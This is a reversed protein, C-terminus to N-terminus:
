LDLVKTFAAVAANQVAVTLQTALQAENTVVMLDSLSTTGAAAGLSAQAATQQVGELSDLASGLLGAFGESSGAASSAGTSEPAIPGVPPVLGVFM